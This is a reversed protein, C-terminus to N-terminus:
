ISKEITGHITFISGRGKESNVSISGSFDNEIIKKVTTLGIGTGKGIPKTTYLPEFIKELNEPEIGCAFDQISIAFRADQKTLTIIIKKGPTDVGEYADIANSILNTIIQNFKLPNGFTFIEKEANFEISIKQKRAQYELVDISNEIEENLSFTEKQEQQSYQKKIAQIFKELKRSASLARQLCSKTESVNEKQDDNVQSLNLSIATLPSALDHFLGSSLRGFEAFRDMQTMKEIQAQKLEKTREDVRIELLDREKKLEAESKRARRLSKEIERNFLWSVISIIILTVVIIIIDETKATSDDAWYLDPHIINKDQLYALFFLIASIILTIVYAFKTNILIGAMIIVLAYILLGLPLDVGWIVLNYTAAILYIIILIYSALRAYGKRSLLYLSFFGIFIFFLLAPPAGYYNPRFILYGRVTILFALFSLFTSGSVIINLIFERRSLDENKSKPQIESLLFHVCKKVLLSIRKITQGKNDTSTDM